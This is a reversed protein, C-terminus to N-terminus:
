EHGFTKGYHEYLAVQYNQSIVKAPDYAPASEITEKALDVVVAERTWDVSNFWTPAILVKKGFLPNHIGVELYRITWEPEELIIDEVYGIEGDLAHIRYSKIEESHHLYSNEPKTDDASSHVSPVPKRGFPPNENWYPKLGYYHFYEQEYHRSIPLATYVPPCHQIKERSLEVKLCDNKVDVDSIMSPVILIDKGTLWTGTHVVFYRVIWYQDDFYIQKIKGIEGDQAQLRYGTLNSLKHPQQM